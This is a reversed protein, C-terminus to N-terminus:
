ILPIMCYKDKQIQSIGILMIDELIIWTAVPTLIMTNMQLASYCEM